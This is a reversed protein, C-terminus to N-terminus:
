TARAVNALIKELSAKLAVAEQEDFGDLLRAFVKQVRRRAQPVLAASEATLEVLYSRRDDPNAVRRILGKKEIRDLLRTMAGSDYGLVRCFEGITRGKGMAISNFVVFQAATIDLPELEKEISTWIANRVGSISFGLEGTSLMAIASPRSKTM